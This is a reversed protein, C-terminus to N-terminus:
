IDMWLALSKDRRGTFKKTKLSKKIASFSDHLLSATIKRKPFPFTSSKAVYYSRGM